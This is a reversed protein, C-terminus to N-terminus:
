VCVRCLPPLVKNRGDIPITGQGISKGLAELIKLANTDGEIFVYTYPLVRIASEVGPFSQLPHLSGIVAGKEDLPKLISSPHAGSTFFNAM